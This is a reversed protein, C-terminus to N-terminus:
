SQWKKCSLKRRPIKECFANKRGLGPNGSKDQYLMGFLPFLKFYGYSIGFPWLIYWIAMFYVLHGYFIYVLHGYFLGFPWLMSWCRGEM